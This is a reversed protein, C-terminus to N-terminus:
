LKPKKTWTLLPTLIVFDWYKFHFSKQEQIAISKLNEGSMVWLNYSTHPWLQFLGFLSMQFVQHMDFYWNKMRVAM